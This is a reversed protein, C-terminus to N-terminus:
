FYFKFPVKFGQQNFASLTEEKMYAIRPYGGTTQGDQLIVIPQGRPPLQIFGPLVGVSNTLGSSLQLQQGQLKAGMRNSNPTIHFSITTLTKKSEATLLAYEPGPFIRFIKKTSGATLQIDLTSDEVTEWSLEDGKVIPRGGKHGLGAYNYAACSNYNSQSSRLGRIALYSRLGEKASGSTLKDGSNVRITSSMIAPQDNIKWRLEAGSLAITAPSHFLIHPGMMTCEIVPASVDNGVLTNAQAAAVSDMAGSKPIAYYALGSRGQDQITTYLGPKIFTLSPM